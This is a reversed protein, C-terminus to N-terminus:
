FLKQTARVSCGCARPPRIELYKGEGLLVFDGGTLAPWLKDSDRVTKSLSEKQTEGPQCPSSDQLSVMVCPLPPTSEGNGGTIRLSPHAQEQWVMEAALVEKGRSSMAGSCIHLRRM